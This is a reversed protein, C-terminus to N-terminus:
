MAKMNTSTNEVVKHFFINNREKCSDIKLIECVLEIENSLFDLDGNLKKEMLYTSIGLKQALENRSIGERKM